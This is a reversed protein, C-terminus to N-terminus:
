DTIIFFTHCIEGLCYMVHELPAYKAPEDNYPECDAFCKPNSHDIINKAIEALLPTTADNKTMELLDSYDKNEGYTYWGERICLARLDSATITMKEKITM